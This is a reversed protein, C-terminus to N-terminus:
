VDPFRRSRAVGSCPRAARAAGPAVVANSTDVCCCVSHKRGARAGSHESCRGSDNVDINGSNGFQDSRRHKARFSHHGGLCVGFTEDGIRGSGGEGGRGRRDLKFSFRGIRRSLIRRLSCIVTVPGLSLAAGFIVAHVRLTFTKASDESALLTPPAKLNRQIYTIRSPQTRHTNVLDNTVQLAPLTAEALTISFHLPTRM